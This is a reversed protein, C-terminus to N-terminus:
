TPLLFIQTLEEASAREGEGWQMLREREVMDRTILRSGNERRCYAAWIRVVAVTGNADTFSHHMCLAIIFGGRIINMQVLM